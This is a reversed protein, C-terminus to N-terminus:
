NYFWYQFDKIILKMFLIIYLKTFQILIYSFSKFFSKYNFNKIKTFKANRNVLEQGIQNIVLLKRILVFVDKAFVFSINLKLLM